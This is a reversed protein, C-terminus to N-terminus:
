RRRLDYSYLRDQERLYLHGGVVVPHSWSPKTVDPIEFSGKEQYSEPTAEILLMRGNEYRFYLRGDAYVVAATGSGANRLEGGWKVEGSELEVCIPFGRRHGHGAYIHNEVLVLGGHHNQFLKSNLFYVERAAIGDGAPELRLLASGTQYGTSAFILDGRVIPTSINATGNAVRNYGWLFRGDEARVGILGRGILQVYQRVGGGESIVISSYGAGDRGAPGLEPVASRWVESGTRKDLAVLMAERAGPTVILREGDVLPSESFKWRSMMQGGLDTVLNCRWREAGTSADLCVLDGETGLAYVRDGDVTPTSRSGDRGPDSTHAPGVRTKWLVSGDDADIAIVYQTGQLDGLTLIRGGAVALSSFGSGLGQVTWSLAPGGPPWEQLLGQERSVGDRRPGRWQPWEEDAIVGRGPLAALGIAALVL